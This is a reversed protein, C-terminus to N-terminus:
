KQRALTFSMLGVPEGGAYPTWNSEVKGGDAFVIKAEHIHSDSEPNLNTGGAFDFKLVDATSAERDLRMTPQNGGACYHTLVLDEGDLHYMNIMEHDTGPMMTEMVVTGNASVEFVHTVAQGSGEEAEGEGEAAGEWTGAMDKLREFAAAATTGPDAADGAFAGPSLGTLLCTLVALANWTSQRM